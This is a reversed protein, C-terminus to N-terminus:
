SSSLRDRFPANWRKQCAGACSAGGPPRFSQDGDDLPHRARDAVQDLGMGPTVDDGDRM